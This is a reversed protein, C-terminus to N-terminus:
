AAVRSVRDLFFRGFDEAVTEHPRGSIDVFVVPSEGQANAQSTDIAYWNGDGTDQVLVLCSPLGTKREDLTLWIGNPVTGVDFNNRTIGYFEESRIGGSGLEKLFRRYTPPFRLSLREEAALIWEEPRPGVFDNTGAAGILTLAREYDAM